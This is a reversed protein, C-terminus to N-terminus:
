KLLIWKQILNFKTAVNREKEGKALPQKSKPIAFTPIFILGAFKKSSKKCLDRM